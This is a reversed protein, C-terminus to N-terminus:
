LLFEIGRSFVCIHCQLITYFTTYSCIEELKFKGLIKLFTCRRTLCITGGGLQERSKTSSEVFSCSVRWLCFITALSVKSRSHVYTCSGFWTQHERTTPQFRRSGSSDRPRADSTIIIQRCAARFPFFIITPM